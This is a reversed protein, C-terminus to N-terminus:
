CSQVHLYSPNGVPISARVQQGLVICACWLTHTHLQQSGRGYVGWGVWREMLATILAALHANALRGRRAAAAEDSLAGVLLQVALASNTHRDTNPPCGCMPGLALSIKWPGVTPCSTKINLIVTPVM